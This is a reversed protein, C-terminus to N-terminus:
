RIAEHHASRRSATKGAEELYHVTRRYERGQEFHVALEAAIESARAGYAQEEREGIRRHLSVHQAVTMREYLVDQYLAHLFSYCAAGTGDPWETTGMARVFQGRRALTACQHEVEEVAAELGAAVAAASFEAGAISAAGLMEQEAPSLRALQQELMQQLNEPVPTMGLTPSNLILEPGARVRRRPAWY